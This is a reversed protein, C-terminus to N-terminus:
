DAPEQGAAQKLWHRAREVIPRDIMRGDLTVAGLGKASAEDDAAIVKRAWALQQESPGFGANAAAVQRPHICVTGTFGISRAQRVLRGFADVDAIDAVSGPLGWCALEFARACVAVKQAAWLLPGPEPEVQMATAYDESGFGLACLAPHAAIDAARLVGLPSEILAVIPPGATPGAAETAGAADTTRAADMTRAASTAGVVNAVRAASTAGTARAIADALEDISEVSEVKPLLVAQLRALPLSAIDAALLGPPANVRALLPVTGAMAEIAQAALVRAEAKRAAPVADELDIILADAGRETAKRFLHPSTAPVFLLSRADKLRM